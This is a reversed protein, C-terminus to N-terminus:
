KGYANLAEKLPPVNWRARESDTISPDVPYLEYKGTKANYFSQTGYKQPLNKSVLYRDLTAASLWLASSDGDRIAQNALEHAQWYDTSSDGHQLILAANKLDGARLSAQNSRLIRYVEVRRLSDEKSLLVIYAKDPNGMMNM